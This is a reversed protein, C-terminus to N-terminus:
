SFVAVALATNIAANHSRVTLEMGVGQQPSPRMRIRALVQIDLDILVGSLYLIHKTRKDPIVDSGQCPALGLFKIMEAIGEKLNNVTSLNFTAVHQPMEQESAAWADEFDPLAKPKMYNAVSFSIEDLQIEDSFAEAESEDIGHSKFLLNNWFTCVPLSDDTESVTPRRIVAYVDSTEYGSNDAPIVQIMEFEDGGSEIGIDITVDKLVQEKLTNTVTYHFVVHAAFVHKVVYVHYASEPETLETPTSSHFLQGLNHSRLAPISTIQSATAAPKEVRTPRSPQDHRNETTAPQPKPRVNKSVQTIDFPVDQPGELYSQLAAHLNDLPINLDDSILHDALEIAGTDHENDGELMKLYFTVRERVEDDSDMLSRRLLVKVKGRLEARHLGFKALASVASSRIIANELPIRNYIYRIYRSPNSAKPGKEGLLHLIKTSLNTYDCDEIFECLHDLAVDTSEPVKEIITLMTSVISGKYEAGGEERLMSWLFNLISYHKEPYKLSLTRIADVVTVKFEDSIESIFGSIQKMLREIGGENEVKLLTTTALTAVSRNPDGILNEMEYACSGAIAQPHTNSVKNLTRVAAFKLTTRPSGLLIQLVSVAPAIDQASLGDMNCIARAAEYVVIESKHRLCIELYRFLKEDRTGSEQMVEVSIRILLCHAYHSRFSGSEALSTVLKTVALRDRRKIKHLLGLAHYQVMVSRSNLAEQVETVWRKVVEGSHESLHVGAVLASSAVYSEKDVIAQKLYREMQSLMTTDMIGSIVRIANARNLEVDSNVDKILTAFAIITDEAKPALEKLLLHVMRRLAVDKSQFLKTSAIFVNTAEDSTLTDGKATLLYLIKTLLYYCERTKLKPSSFMRIDQLVLGKELGQFPVFGEEDDKEKKDGFSDMVRV